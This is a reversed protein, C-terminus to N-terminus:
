DDSNSDEDEDQEKNRVQNKIKNNKDFVFATESTSVFSPQFKFKSARKTEKIFVYVKHVSASKVYAEYKNGSRMFKILRRGIDDPLVGVYQENELVFIRSRKICLNVLQGIRLTEIVKPQAINILEVIKTKGTEELFNNNIQYGVAPSDDKTNNEKLRKLNKIAITNLPDLVFVKKYTAKANKIKGVITFALALRNLADIDNPNESLLRKNLTIANEWDGTLATKIAQNKINPPQFDTM